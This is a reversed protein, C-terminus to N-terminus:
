RRDGKRAAAEKPFSAASASESAEIFAICERTDCKATRLQAIIKRREDARAEAIMKQEREDEDHFRCETSGCCTDSGCEPCCQGGGHIQMTM